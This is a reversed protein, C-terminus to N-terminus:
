SSSPSQTLPSSPPLTLQSDYVDNKAHFFDIAHIIADSSISEDNALSDPRLFPTQAGYSEGIAAYDKSDTSLLFKDVYSLKKAFEISNVLLPKGNFYHINKNIFRKSGSRALVVAWIIM